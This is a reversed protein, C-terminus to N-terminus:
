LAHLRNNANTITADNVQEFGPRIRGNLIRDRGSSSPLGQKIEKAKPRREPEQSLCRKMLTWMNDTLGRSVDINPREPLQSSYVIKGYISKISQPFLFMEYCLMGFAFVDSAEDRRRTPDQIREPALFYHTGGTAQDSSFAPGRFHSGIMDTVYSFGFDTLLAQEPEAVLVNECKLDGHAVGNRHLYEMGSAVGYMLHPRNATPQDGLFNYITGNPMLPSVLCLTNDFFYIGYFPLINEHSLQSWVVAERSFAKYANKRRENFAEPSDREQYVKVSKLCVLSGNYRAHFIDGFTGRTRPKTERDTVGELEFSRPCLESKRCLRVLAVYLIARFQPMLPAHDLLKQLIDLLDKAAEGRCQLFKAYNERDNFVNLLSKCIDTVQPGVEPGLSDIRSTDVTSKCASASSLIHTDLDSSPHWGTQAALYGSDSSFDHNMTFLRQQLWSLSTKIHLCPTTTRFRRTLWLVPDAYRKSEKRFQVEQNMVLAM